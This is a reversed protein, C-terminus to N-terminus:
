ECYYRDLMWKEPNQEIYEWIERYDQEGRIVHEHFHVQWIRQGVRKSILGKTQQVVRSITPLQDFGDQLVLIMHVHNPMIVFSDVFVGSYSKSIREIADQTIKGFQSLCIKADDANEEISGLICKRGETCFTIFYFGPLSYDYNELRNKKRTPFPNM